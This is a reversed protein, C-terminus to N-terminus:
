LGLQRGRLLGQSVGFLPHWMALRRRVDLGLDLLGHREHVADFRDAGIWRGTLFEVFEHLVEADADAEGEALAPPVVSGNAHELAADDGEAIARQGAREAVAAATRQGAAQRLLRVVLMPVVVAAARVVAM